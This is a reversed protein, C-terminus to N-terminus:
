QTTLNEKLDRVQEGYEGTGCNAAVVVKADEEKGNKKAEEVYQDTIDKKCFSTQADELRAARNRYDGKDIYITSHNGGVLIMIIFFANALLSVIAVSKFMDTAMMQHIKAVAGNKTSKTSKQTKKSQAM